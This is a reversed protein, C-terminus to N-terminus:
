PLKVSLGSNPGPPLRLATDMGPHARLDDLLAKPSIQTGILRLSESRPNEVEKARYILLLPIAGDIARRCLGRAYYRNFEGEALTQPATIPVNASIVGTKTRRTEKELFCGQNRLQLALWQDDHNACAERLLQPYVRRGEDNLRPSRYLTDATVDADLEQLMHHRTKEDLNVLNLM